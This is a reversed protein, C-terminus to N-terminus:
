YYPTNALLPKNEEIKTIGLIIKLGMYTGEWLSSLGSKIRKRKDKNLFYAKVLTLSKAISNILSFIIAYTKLLVNFKSFKLSFSKQRLPTTYTLFNENNSFSFFITV